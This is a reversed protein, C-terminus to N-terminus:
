DKLEKEKKRQKRGRKIEEYTTWGGDLKSYGMWVYDIEPFVYWFMKRKLLATSDPCGKIDIVQSSGDKYVVYFDAIYEIPRITAGDKKFAPQLVYKKQREYERIEGSAIGPLIIDRYYKMEVASDFVIGDFERESTNKNVNFKHQRKMKFTATAFVM